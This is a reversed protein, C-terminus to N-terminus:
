SSASTYRKLSHKFIIRTAVVCLVPAIIGWVAYEPSMKRLIFLAPFNTVVFIPIVFVGIRQILKSYIGMPMNNFDWFSDVFAAVANTKVLRFALLQPLLFIGYGVISGAAVYGFYGILTFVNLQINLRYLGVGLAILGAIVDVILCGMDSRRLTLLFQLSVPKVILLDLDGSWVKHSIDFLNMMYLGAYSGTVIMYTAFFVLVEDPTLGNIAAGTKYIVILYVVKALLYGIEMAIGTVFNARYELQAMLSNKIFIRWLNLHKTVEFIIRRM